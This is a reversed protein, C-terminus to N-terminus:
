QKLASCNVEPPQSKQYNTLLTVYERDIRKEFPTLAHTKAEHSATLTNLELIGTLFANTSASANNRNQCSATLKNVLTIEQHHDSHQTFFLAIMSGVFAVCFASLIVYLVRARRKFDEKSLFTKNLLAIVQTLNKVEHILERDPAGPSKKSLPPGGENHPTPPQPLAM